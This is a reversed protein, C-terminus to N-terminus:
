FLSPLKKPLLSMRKPPASSQHVRPPTQAHQNTLNPRKYPTLDIDEPEFGTEPLEEKM